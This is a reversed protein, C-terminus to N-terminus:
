LSMAPRPDSISHSHRVNTEHQPWNPCSASILGRLLTSRVRVHGVALDVDRSHFALADGGRLGTGLLRAISGTGCGSRRLSPPYGSEERDQARNRKDINQLAFRLSRFHSILLASAGTCQVKLPDIAGGDRRLFDGPCQCVVETLLVELCLDVAAVLVARHHLSALLTQPALQQPDGVRQGHDDRGSLALQADAQPTM